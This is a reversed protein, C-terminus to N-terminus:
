QRARGGRGGGARTRLPRRDRPPGPDVPPEDAGATGRGAGPAPCWCGPRRGWRCGEGAQGEGQGAVTRPQDFTREVWFCRPGGVVRLGVFLWSAVGGVGGPRWAPRPDRTAPRPDSVTRPQDFTREVWFSRPGGLVRSGVVAGVGGAGPAGPRRDGTAPPGGDIRRGIVGPPGALGRAHVSRRPATLAPVTARHLAAAGAPVAASGPPQCRQISGGVTGLSGPVVVGWGAAHAPHPTTTPHGGEGWLLPGPDPRATLGTLPGPLREPDGACRRRGRSRRRLM